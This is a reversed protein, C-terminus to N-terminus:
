SYWKDEMQTLRFVIGLWWLKHKTTCIAAYHERKYWGRESIERIVWTHYNLFQNKFGREACPKHDQTRMDRM